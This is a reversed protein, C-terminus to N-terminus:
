HQLKRRKLKRASLMSGSRLISMKKKPKPLRLYRSWNKKSLRLQSDAERTAVDAVCINAEGLSHPLFVQIGGIM